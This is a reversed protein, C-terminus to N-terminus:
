IGVLRDDQDIVPIVVLDYKAIKKAVTEQDDDVRASQTSDEMIESVSSHPEAFILRQLKVSGLLKRENDILYVRYITEKDPAERRLKKLAEGVSIHPTLVAYESTMISGATGEEYSALRRID